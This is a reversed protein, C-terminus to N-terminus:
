YVFNATKTVGTLVEPPDDEEPGPVLHFQPM